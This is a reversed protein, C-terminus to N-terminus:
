PRSGGVIRAAPTLLTAAVSPAACSKTADYLSRAGNPVSQGDVVLSNGLAAPDGYWADAWNVNGGLALSFTSNRLYPQNALGLTTVHRSLSVLLNAQCSRQIDNSSLTVDADGRLLSGAVPFAAHVIIGFTNNVLSNDRIVMHSMGQLNPAGNGVADLRVGVGVPKRLHDRVENNAVTSTVVSTAPLVYQEVGFGVPLLLAPSSVIGPIGGALLRNGEVLFEGPGALCIDCAGGIPMPIGGLQNQMIQASSARLDLTETFGSEFRNGRIVLGNVRMAFVGQGGALTDVGIHGSQFVLGQVVLGSGASGGPHANAIFIPTSVGTQSNTGGVIPLPETPQLVSEIGGAGTGTARGKADLGMVLAGTLTIDPADVIIPFHEVTTDANQQSSGRYVGSAVTVTIRCAAVLGENRALRGARIAAIADTIRSFHAGDKAQGAQQTVALDTLYDGRGLHAAVQSQPVGIITGSSGSVSCVSLQKEAPAAATPADKSCSAIGAIIAVCGALTAAYRM